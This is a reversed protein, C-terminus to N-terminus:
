HVYSWWWSIDRYPPPTMDQPDWYRPQNASILNPMVLRGVKAHTLYRLSGLMFDVTTPIWLPLDTAVGAIDPRHDARLQARLRLMVACIREYLQLPILEGAAPAPWTLARADALVRSGASPLPGSNPTRDSAM